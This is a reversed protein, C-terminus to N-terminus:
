SIGYELVNFSLAAIVTTASSMKESKEMENLILNSIEHLDEASLCNM